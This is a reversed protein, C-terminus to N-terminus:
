NKRASYFITRSYFSTFRVIVAQKRQGDKNIIKGVRDTRDIAYDPIDMNADSKIKLVKNRIDVSSENNQLPIGYIRVNCRRGYQELNEIRESLNINEKRLTNQNVELKKVHEQIAAISTALESIQGLEESKKEFFVNIENNLEDKREDVFTQIDKSLDQLLGTKFEAFRKEMMSTVDNVNFKPPM